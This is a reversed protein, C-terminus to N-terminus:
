GEIFNRRYVIKPGYILIVPHDKIKVIITADDFIHTYPADEKSALKHYTVRECLGILESKKVLKKVESPLSDVVEKLLDYKGPDTGKPIIKQNKKKM